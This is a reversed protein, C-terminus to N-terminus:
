KKTSVSAARPSRRRRAKTIPEGLVTKRFQDSENAVSEVNWESVFYVKPWNAPHLEFLRDLLIPDALSRWLSDRDFNTAVSTVEARGFRLFVDALVSIPASNDSLVALEANRVAAGDGNISVTLGGGGRVFKMAEVDTADDGVYMLDALPSSLNEAVEQVANAKEAAGVINVDSFIRKCRTGTIEKWFIKDLRSITAQDRSSLDRLSKAYSPINISPMGGIEWALSKLKSKEKTTLEFEDLNVETSYTNELPFGVERCLARVYHEYSTSVIFAESIKHVYNMTETSGKLLVLNAASFEEVTKNDADFALLFPLVLKSANGATYDRRKPFNAHAYDYKCIIDFVRDGEPVFHTALEFAIDNKAIPGECDSVFVRKM